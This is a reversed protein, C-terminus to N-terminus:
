PLLIELCFHSEREKSSGIFFGGKQWARDVLLVSKFV